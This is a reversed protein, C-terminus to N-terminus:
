KRKKHLNFGKYIGLSSIRGIELQVGFKPKIKYRAGVGANLTVYGYSIPIDSNQFGLYRYRQLGVGAFAYVDWRTHQIFHYTMDVSYRHIGWSRLGGSINNSSLNARIGIKENLMYEAGLNYLVGSWRGVSSFGVNVNLDGKKYQRVGIANKKKEANESLRQEQASTIFPFAIIISVLLLKKM